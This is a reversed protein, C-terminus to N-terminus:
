QKLENLRRNYLAKRGSIWYGFLFLEGIMVFLILKAMSWEVMGLTHLFTLTVLYLLPLILGWYPKDRTSLLHQVAFVLLIICLRYWDNM